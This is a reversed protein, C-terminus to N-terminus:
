IKFSGAKFRIAQPIKRTVTADNIILHAKASPFLAVILQRTKDEQMYETALRNAEINLCSEVSLGEAPANHDQYIKVHKFILHINLEKYLMLIVSEIDWEARLTINPTIYNWASLKEMGTLLGKNDYILTNETHREHTFEM